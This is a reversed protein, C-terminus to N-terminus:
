LQNIKDRLRVMYEQTLRILEQSEEQTMEEFIEKEMKVVPIIKDDFFIKGQPTLYIRKEKDMGQKIQIYGDKEIKKISSHITQKSIFHAECIDKQLCGEGLEFISYFILFASDSLGVKLAIDHYLKDIERYIRNYEELANERHFIM